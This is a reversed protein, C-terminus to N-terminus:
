DFHKDLLKSLSSGGKMTRFGGKLSADITGWRENRTGPIKGTDKTPWYGTRRHHTKAWALIQKISLPGGKQRYPRNRHKSLFKALSSGRKYGRRGHRLAEHVASWNEGSAGPIKGSERNPWTGTRRKHADAWALIKKAPLTPQKLRNRVGRKQDLLQPLSSGRKLGRSGTRLAANLASWTEGTAGRVKGSTARPWKRTRRHHVDAWALIKSTTLKTNKKAM